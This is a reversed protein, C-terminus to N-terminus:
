HEGGITRFVRGGGGTRNKEGSFTRSDKGEVKREGGRKEDEELKRPSKKKGIKKEKGGV